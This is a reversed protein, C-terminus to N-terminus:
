AMHEENRMDTMSGLVGSRWGMEQARMHVCM